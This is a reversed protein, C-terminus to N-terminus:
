ARFYRSRFEYPNCGYMQKFKKSFYSVSGYGIRSSIEYITLSTRRLLEAGQILRYETLYAVFTQGTEKKFLRYLYDTNFNLEDAIEQMSTLSAYHEQIYKVTNRIAPSMRCDQKLRDTLSSLAEMVVAEAQSIHECRLLRETYQNMAGFSSQSLSEPFCGTFDYLLRFFISNVYSRDPEQLKRVADMIRCLLPNLEDLRKQRISAELAACQKELNVHGEADYTQNEQITYLRPLSSSEYFALQLADLSGRVCGPLDRWDSGAPGMGIHLNFTGSLCAAYDRLVCYQKLLSNSAINFLLVLRNPHNLSFYYLNKIEHGSIEERRSLVDAPTIEETLLLCLAALPSNQIGIGYSHLLGGIMRAESYDSECLKKIFSSRLILKFSTTEAERKKQELKVCLGSLLKPTLESKLLYDAAGSVLAQRAYSFDDYNTLLVVSVPLEELRITELLELGDMVPMRIDALVLDPLRDRIATLAEKGNAATGVCEFCEPMGAALSAIWNRIPKEDDVILLRLM